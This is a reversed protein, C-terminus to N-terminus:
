SRAQRLASSGSEAIRLSNYKRAVSCALRARHLVKGKSDEVGRARGTSYLAVDKNNFDAFFNFFLDDSL